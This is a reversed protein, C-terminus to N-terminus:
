GSVIISGYGSTPTFSIRLFANLLGAAITGLLLGVATKVKGHPM